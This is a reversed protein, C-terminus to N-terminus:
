EAESPLVPEEGETDNDFREESSYGWMLDSEFSNANTDHKTPDTEADYENSKEKLNRIKLDNAVREMMTMTCSNLEENATTLKENASVLQNTVNNLQAIKINLAVTLASMIVIMGILLIKSNLSFM